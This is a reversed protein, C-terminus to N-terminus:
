VGSCVRVQARLCVCVCLRVVKVAARLKGFSQPGQEKAADVEPDHRKLCASDPTKEQEVEVVHTQAMLVTLDTITDDSTSAPSAFANDISAHRTMVVAQPLSSAPSSSVIDNSPHAPDQPSLVLDYNGGLGTKKLQTFHCAHRM